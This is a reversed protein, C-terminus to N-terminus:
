VSGEVKKRLSRLARSLRQRLGTQSLGTQTELEEYSLGDLYYKEVLERTEPPLHELVESVDTRETSAYIKELLETTFENESRKGLKRYEDILLHKILVFFWPGFPQSQYLDKKEHLHRWVKQYFDEAESPRLRKRIFGYVMGSYKEYLANFAAEDGRKYRQGLYSLGLLTFSIAFLWDKHESLWILQPFVGLFNSLSAGLGLLVLTSPLACCLLTGFSTFLSVWSILLYFYKNDKFRSSM